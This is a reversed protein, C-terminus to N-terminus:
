HHELKWHLWALLDQDKIKFHELIFHCLNVVMDTLSMNLTVIILIIYQERQELLMTESIYILCIHLQLIAPSSGLLM